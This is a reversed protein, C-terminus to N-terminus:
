EPAQVQIRKATITFTGSFVVTGDPAYYFFDGSGTYTNGNASLKTTQRVKGTGTPGTADFTFNNYTLLFKREGIMKWSGHGPTALYGPTVGLEDAESYGGGAAYTETGHFLTPAGSPNPITVTYLWTGEPGQNCDRVAEIREAGAVAPASGSMVGLVALVAVAVATKTKM